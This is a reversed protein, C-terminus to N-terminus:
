PNQPPYARDTHSCLYIDPLLDVINPAHMYEWMYIWVPCYNFKLFVKILHERRLSEVKHRIGLKAVDHLQANQKLCRWYIFILHEFSHWNTKLLWEALGGSRESMETQFARYDNAEYLPVDFFWPFLHGNGCSSRVFDSLEDDEFYTICKDVIPIVDGFPADPSAFYEAKRYNAIMAPFLNRTDRIFVSDDDLSCVYDYGRNIAYRILLFKKLNVVCGDHNEIYRRTLKPSSVECELYDLISILQIDLIEFFSQLLGTLLEIQGLDSAGIIFATDKLNASPTHALYSNLKGVIFSMKSTHVPIVFCQKM